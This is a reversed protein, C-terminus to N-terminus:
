DRNGGTTAQRINDSMLNECVVIAALNGPQIEAGIEAIDTDDLLGSVASQWVALDADNLAAIESRGLQRVEGDLGKHVFELALV